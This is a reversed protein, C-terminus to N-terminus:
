GAQPLRIEELAARLADLLQDVDEDRIWGLHGIRFITGELNGQGGALVVGYRERLVRLLGKGDVDQPVRVATVADSRVSPDAFLELNLEEIGKRIRTALRHHRAFVAEQGEASMLRLAEHLAYVVSVAPTFPATGREGYKRAKSFDWYFRPMRAELHAEWARESMVAMALGPPSMWAKQSGTIAVDIGWGDFDFPVAGISSVGDVIVLPSPVRDRIARAIAALNQTVGTSTENHTLLVARVGPLRDLTAGVEDPDAATGWPVEHRHVRAGFAEAIDAFRDGFAGATIALVEDGPSLVNVVAAEQAGTGSGTLLLPDHRTGFWPKLGAVVERMCAAFEPGRHNVMPQSSARAVDPPVPTPGPVRLNQTQRATM